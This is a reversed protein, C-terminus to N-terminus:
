NPIAFNIGNHVIKIVAHAASMIEGDLKRLQGSVLEAASRSGSSPNVIFIHKMTDVNFNYQITCNKSKLFLETM